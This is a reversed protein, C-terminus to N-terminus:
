PHDSPLTTRSEAPHRPVATGGVETDAARCHRTPDHTTFPSLIKVQRNLVIVLQESDLLAGLLMLPECTASWRMVATDRTGDHRWSGPLQDPARTWGSQRKGTMAWVARTGRREHNESFGFSSKSPAREKRETSHGLTRRKGTNNCFRCVDGHRGFHWCRKGCLPKEQKVCPCCQESAAPTPTMPQMM